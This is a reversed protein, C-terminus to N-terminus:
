AAGFGVASRLRGDLAYRWGHYRCVLEGECTGREGDVLPGARVASFLGLGTVLAPALMIPSLDHRGGQWDALRRVFPAVMWLMYCFAIFGRSPARAYLWLGSALAVPAFVWTLAGGIGGAAMAAAVALPPLAALWEERATM